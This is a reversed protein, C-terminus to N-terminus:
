FHGIKSCLETSKQFWVKLMQQAHFGGQPTMTAMAKSDKSCLFIAQNEQLRAINSTWQSSVDLYRTHWFCHINPGWDKVWVVMNGLKKPSGTGILMVTFETFWWRKNFVYGSTNIFLDLRWHESGDRTHQLGIMRMRSTKKECSPNGRRSVFCHKPHGQRRRLLSYCHV